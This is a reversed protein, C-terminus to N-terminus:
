APQMRAPCGGRSSPALGRQTLVNATDISDKRRSPFAMCRALRSETAYGGSGRNQRRGPGRDAVTVIANVKPNVAQIRDLSAGEGSGRSFNRWHPDTRALKTADSYILETQMTQRGVQWKAPTSLHSEVQWMTSELLPSKKQLFGPPPRHTFIGTFVNQRLCLEHGLCVPICPQVKTVEGLSTPMLAALM